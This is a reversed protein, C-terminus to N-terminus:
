RIISAKGSRIDKEISAIISDQVIEPMGAEKFEERLTNLAQQINEEEQDCESVEKVEKIASEVDSVNKAKNFIDSLLQKILQEKSTIKVPCCGELYEEKTMKSVEEEVQGNIEEFTLYADALDTMIEPLEKIIRKGLTYLECVEKVSYHAEVEIKGIELGAVKINGLELRTKM